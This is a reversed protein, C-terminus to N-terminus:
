SYFSFIFSSKLKKPDALSKDNKPDCYRLFYWNSGAWNPMTDTERKASGKCKPCKVNVWEKIDSLPSEGTNTPKYKKVYPLEVPLDKESVPVVGCKECHIIPIPEGWYHQRSFVWDHLKYNIMWRGKVKKVIAESDVLKTKKIKLNYKKAFEKDREDHDPVAMIAGTGYKMLVYDAIWIPIKEKTAPNIVHEGSFVGTKEKRQGLNINNIYKKVKPDKLNKVRPHDPSLVLFTAGMITDPRTTFVKIGSFDIEVGRSKGIWNIQQTKIRKSYDVKELDKLLREAYNTIKLMWQKQNRKETGAGCRECKGNIVEENALGIKCSPCWNIPIKAQYALKKKFMQLFIWQTWKYYKSDTTNIERSWDFSLGLSKLQKRFIDTNQKTIEEPHKGTKIAYNETPLGFADYGIPYLVNYGEMRKKRAVADLASYSRVHGVHLGDGSPYPFEILTYNKPKKDFDKAQYLDLQEWKKQWKKEIKLPNYQEM